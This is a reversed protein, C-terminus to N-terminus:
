QIVVEGEEESAELKPALPLLVRAVKEAIRRQGEPLPQTYVGLTLRADTHGLQAQLAKTSEGTPEAWTCFTYRFTHWGIAPIGARKCAPLLARSRVNNPNFPTGQSTAFVLSDPGASLARLRKLADFAAERVYVKRLSARTKPAQACGQYMTEVVLISHEEFDLSRWRLGFIEGCRLGSLVALLVMTRYPERLEALLARVQEPKLSIKTRRDVLAPVQVGRVPNSQLYRWRVAVEFIKSLRNRISVVTRPSVERSKATIFMQVDAPGIEPLRMPGFFPLMHKRFLSRYLRQTSRRLTPLINPEFRELVFAEFGIMLEPKHTGQNIAALKETLLRQAQRKGIDRVHGLVVSRERRKRRGDPTLVDERYRGVWVPNKKGRQFLWGSQWRPRAM